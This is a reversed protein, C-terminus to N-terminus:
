RVNKTILNYWFETTECERCRDDGFTYVCVNCPRTTATKAMRECLPMLPITLESTAKYDANLWNLFEQENKAWLETAYLGFLKTFVEANTM